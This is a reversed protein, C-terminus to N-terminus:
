GSSKMKHVLFLKDNMTKNRLNEKQHIVRSYEQAFVKMVTEEKMGGGREWIFFIFKYSYSKYIVKDCVKLFVNKNRRSAKNKLTVTM